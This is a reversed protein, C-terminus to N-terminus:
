KLADVDVEEENEKADSNAHGDDGVGGGDEAGKAIALQQTDWLTHYLGKWVVVKGEADVEKENQLLEEHTGQEVACGEDGMVVIRDCNCITTLRHAVVIAVGNFEALM